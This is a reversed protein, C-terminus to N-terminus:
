PNTVFNQAINENASQASLFAALRGSILATAQSTGTKLGYANGPLSSNLNEGLAFLVRPRDIRNSSSLIEGEANVAGVPHINDLAYSAPFTKTDPSNPRKNGTAVVVQIGLEYAKKLLDFEKKSFGRGSASINIVDVRKDVAYNLAKLFSSKSDRGDQDTYKLIMLELKTQGKHEKQFAQQILGAVHTGHGNYDSVDGSQSIFDWGYVDDIMGNGDDDIGNGPIELPNVWLHNKLDVHHIDAGTDIVAVVVTDRSQASSSGGLTESM